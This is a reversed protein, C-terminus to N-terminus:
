LELAREHERIHTRPPPLTGRAGTATFGNREYLRIAATNDDAVDLVLREYGQERAWDIVTRVLGDGLGRRRAEPAVWMAFLGAVGPRGRYPAGVVMGVDRADIRGLFTVGRNFRERWDRAGMSSEEELRSGFADPDETLARLRVSRVREWEESDPREIKM